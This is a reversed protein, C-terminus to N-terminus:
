IDINKIYEVLCDYKNPLDNVMVEFLLTELTTKIKSGYIGISMLDNGNIDLEKISLCDRSETEKIFESINEENKLGYLYTGIYKSDERGLKSIYLKQKIKDQPVEQANILLKCKRKTENDARLNELISISYERSLYYLRMAFDNPILNLMSIDNAIPMLVEFVEIFNSIVKLVNEGLLIKQLETYIREPSIKLITDKLNHISKSTEDEIEFGLCSSFRLARLIRLADEKFRKQPCGVTRIIKNKIDDYGGFPDIIGKEPSYAIANITFDRRSLDDVLSSVFVVSDPHRSDSYSVETRYTTIEFPIDDIIVTVTGHKIGTEIIKCNLFVNKIQQPLANTTVDFDTANKGMLKDRVCGGVFFAEYGSNNLM